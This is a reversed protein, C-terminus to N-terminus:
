SQSRSQESLHGSIGHALSLLLTDRVIQLTVAELITTQEHHRSTASHEVLVPLLVRSVVGRVRVNQLGEVQAGIGGGGLSGGGGGRLGGSRNTRIVDARHGGLLM